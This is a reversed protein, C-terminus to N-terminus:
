PRFRSRPRRSGRGGNHVAADAGARRVAQHLPGAPLGAGADARGREHLRPRQVPLLGVARVQDNIRAWRTTSPSPPSDANPGTCDRCHGHHTVPVAMQESYGYPTYLPAAATTADSPLRVAHGGRFPQCRQSSISRRRQRDLTPPPRRSSGGRYLPVADRRGRGHPQLHVSQHRGRAARLSQGAAAPLGLLVADHGFGGRPRSDQAADHEAQHHGAPRAPPVPSIAPEPLLGPSRREATGDGATGHGLAPRLGSVPERHRQIPRDGHGPDLPSGIVISTTTRATPFDAAAPPNAPAGVSFLPPLQVDGSAPTTLAPTFLPTPATPQAQNLPIQAYYNATAIPLLQGTFPDPRSVPDDATM